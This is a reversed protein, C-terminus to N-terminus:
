NYRRKKESYLCIRVTGGVSDGVKSLYKCICVRTKKYTTFETSLKLKCVSTTTGDKSLSDSTHPIQWM